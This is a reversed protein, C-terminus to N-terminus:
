KKKGKSKKTYGSYSVGGKRCIDIYTGGKLQKRRVRGGSKVCKKFPAPM